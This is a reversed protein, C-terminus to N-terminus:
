AFYFYKFKNRQRPGTSAGQHSSSTVRWAERPERQLQSATRWVWVLILCGLAACAPGLIYYGDTVTTCHRGALECRDAQESTSCSWGTDESPLTSNLVLSSQKLCETSSIKDVLWLVASRPWMTGLNNITNLFTMYTGGVMPDSVRAFFAMIAIQMTYSTTMHLSYVGILSAEYTFPLDLPSAEGLPVSSPLLSLTSAWYVMLVLVLCLCLRPLFALLWLSLPRTGAVWRGLLVTLVIKVPVMPLALVAVTSRPVGAEVLKLSTVVEGTSFGVKYTMLLLITPLMLPHRLINWVVKYTAVLGPPQEMALQTSKSERKFFTLVLTSLLFLSGWISLFQSLSILGKSQLWTFLAYGVLWGLTQGLTNASSALGLNTPRLLTLAWGDVAVDQTAAMMNLILFLLLLAGVNPSRGGEHGLLADTYQAAVLMTVGICLQAPVLWSKRRGFRKSYISDVLPAWVLKCSFPYFVSNFQAQDEYSVGRESLLLPISEALGIPLGQLTYLFLLLMLDLRDGKLEQWFTHFGRTKSEVGGEVEDVEAADLQHETSCCCGAKAEEEEEREEEGLFCGGEASSMLLSQYCPSAKHRVHGCSM